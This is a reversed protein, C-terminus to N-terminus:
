KEPYSSIIEKASRRESVPASGDLTGDGWHFFLLDDITEQNVGLKKCYEIFESIKEQHVSNGNGIKISINKIQGEYKIIMDPKYDTDCTRRASIKSQSIHNRALGFIDLIFARLNPNLEMITKGDIYDQIEKENQIGSNLAM